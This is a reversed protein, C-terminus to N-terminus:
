SLTQFGVRLPLRGQDRKKAMDRLVERFQEFQEEWATFVKRCEAAIKDFDDFDLYLLRKRQLLSLVKNCLDRSIAEIL